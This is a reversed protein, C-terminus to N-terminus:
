PARAVKSLKGLQATLEKVGMICKTQQRISYFGHALVRGAWHLRPTEHMQPSWAKMVLMEQQM